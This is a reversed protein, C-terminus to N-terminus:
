PSYFFAILSKYSLILSLLDGDSDSLTESLPLCIGTVPFDVSFTSYKQEIYKFM